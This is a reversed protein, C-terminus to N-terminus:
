EEEIELWYHDWDLKTVKFDFVGNSLTLEGLPAMENLMASIRSGGIIYMADDNIMESKGRREVFVRMGVGEDDLKQWFYWKDHERRIIVKEKGFVPVEMPRELATSNIFVM